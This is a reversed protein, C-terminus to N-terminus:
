AKKMSSLRLAVDRYGSVRLEIPNAKAIKCNKKLSGIFFHISSSCFQFKRSVGNMAQNM